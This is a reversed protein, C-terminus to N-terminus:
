SSDYEQFNFGMEKLIRRLRRKETGKILSFPLNEKKLFKLFLQQAKKRFVSQDTRVNDKELPIGSIDLLFFKTYTPLRNKVKEYLRKAEEELGLAQCYIVADIVSRDCIIIPYNQVAKERRLVEDQIQSQFKFTFHTKPKLDLILDRAAEEVFAVKPDNSFIKKLEELIITKGVKASGVLAFKKSM